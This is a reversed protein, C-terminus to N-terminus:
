RNSLTFRQLNNRAGKNPHFNHCTVCSNAVETKTHCKQCNDIGPLNQTSSRDLWRAMATDVAADALIPIINHCDLCGRDLIHAHHDFKARKLTKQDASVRMIASYQVQHCEQCLKNPGGTLQEVFAELGGIEDANLDKRYALSESRFLTALEGESLAALQLNLITLLSDIIQIDSQIEPEPRGRLLDLNDRLENLAALGAEEGDRFDVDGSLGALDFLETNAYLKGRLTKLNELIWPDAHYVPAKVIKSGRAKATFEAPNVYFAWRAAPGKRKQIMALSEVGPTKGDGSAVALTATRSGSTLHCNACHREFDIDGFGIGETDPEHCSLCAQEIFTNKSEKELRELVFKTHRAHTFKLASDDPQKERAFEFEPHNDNFSGYAHCTLCQADTVSTIQASRGNHDPHCSYCNQEDSKHAARAAAIRGTDGSVYTYHADFSYAAIMEGSKGHCTLCKNDTVSKGFVHCKGCDESFGAHNSSLQGAAIFGGSQFYFDYGFWGLPLLSLLLGLLVLKRRSAPNISGEHVPLGLPTFRGKGSPHKQM